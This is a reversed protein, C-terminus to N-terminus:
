KDATSKIDAHPLCAELPRGEVSEIMEEITTDDCDRLNTCFRERTCTSTHGTGM